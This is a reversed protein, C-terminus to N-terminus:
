PVWQAQHPSPEVRPASPHETTTMILPLRLRGHNFLLLSVSHLSLGTGYKYVCFQRYIISPSPFLICFLFSYENTQHFLLFYIKSLSRHLVRREQIINNIVNSGM